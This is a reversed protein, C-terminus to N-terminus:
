TAARLFVKRVHDRVQEDSWEPHRAREHAERLKRATWYLASAQRFRAAPTMERYRAIQEPSPRDM